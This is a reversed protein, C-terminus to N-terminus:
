AKKRRRSGKKLTSKIPNRITLINKTRNNKTVSIRQSKSTIRITNNSSDNRTKRKTKHNNQMPKHNDLHTVKNSTKTSSQSILM